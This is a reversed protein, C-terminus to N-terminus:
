SSLHCPHSFYPGWSEEKPNKKKQGKKCSRRQQVSFCPVPLSAHCHRFSLTPSPASSLPLPCVQSRWTGQLLHKFTSGQPSSSPLTSPLDLFHCQVSCYPPGSCLTVRFKAWPTKRPGLWRNLVLFQLYITESLPIQSFAAHCAKSSFLVTPTSIAVVFPLLDARKDQCSSHNSSGRSPPRADSSCNAPMESPSM